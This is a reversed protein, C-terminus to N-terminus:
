RLHAAELEVEREGFRILDPVHLVIVRKETDM